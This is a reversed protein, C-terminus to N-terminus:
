QVSSYFQRSAYVLPLWGLTPPKLKIMSRSQPESTRVLALSRKRTALPAFFGILLVGNVCYSIFSLWRVILRTSRGESYYHFSQNTYSSPSSLSSFSFRASSTCCVLVPMVICTRHQSHCCILSYLVMYSKMCYSFGMAILEAIESTIYGLELGRRRV